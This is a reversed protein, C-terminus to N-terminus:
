VNLGNSAVGEPLVDDVAEFEVVVAEGGCDFLLRVYFGCYFRALFERIWFFCIQLCKKCIQKQFTLKCYFNAIKSKLKSDVAFLLSWLKLM